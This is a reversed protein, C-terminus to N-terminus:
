RNIEFYDDLWEELQNCIYDDNGANTSLLFLKDHSSKWIQWNEFKNFVKISIVLFNMGGKNRYDQFQFMGAKNYDITSTQLISLLKKIEKRDSIRLEKPSNYYYDVIRVERVALLPYYIGKHYKKNLYLNTSVIIVLIIIILIIKKKKM